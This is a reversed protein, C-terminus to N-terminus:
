SKCCCTSNVQSKAYEDHRRWWVTTENRGKPARDLWQYQSWLVDLGRAFTSYTHYITGDDIQFASMGPRERTYTAIDTGTMLANIGVPSNQMQSDAGEDTRKLWVPEDRYNYNLGIDFQQQETFGVGFDQNFDSASSSAWPFTWGMRKKYAVLKAMPASSVACLTVDHGALHSHLGNFADAIASCSVCGAEYAPGYMFHYIMLQSRGQFLDALTSAGSETEFPYVKDIRVCPLQLRQKAVEDSRRTLEKESELLEKRAEIWADRSVIERQM